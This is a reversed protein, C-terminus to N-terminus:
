AAVEEIERAMQERIRALLEQQVAQRAKARCRAPAGSAM